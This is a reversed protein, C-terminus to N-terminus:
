EGSGLLRSSIIAAVQRGMNECETTVYEVNKHRVDDGYHNTDFGYTTTGDDNQEYFTIGGHVNVESEMSAEIHDAVTPVTVYGCFWREVSIGRHWQANLLEERFGIEKIHYKGNEDQWEKVIDVYM